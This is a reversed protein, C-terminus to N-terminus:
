LIISPASVLPASSVFVDVVATFLVVSVTALTLPMLIPINIVPGFMRGLVYTASVGLRVATVM